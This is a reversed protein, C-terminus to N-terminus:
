RSVTFRRCRPRGSSWGARMWRSASRRAASLALEADLRGSAYDESLVPVLRVDEVHRKPRAYLYSERALGSLRFFDQDELYTGDSWRFLQLAFCNRGPKVYKTVDFEAELKSDESYGVFRGNM